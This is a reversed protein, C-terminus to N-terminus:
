GGIVVALSGRALKLYAGSSSDVQDASAGRPFTTMEGLWGTRWPGDLVQVLGGRAADSFPIARTMKDGSVRESRAPFPALSRILNANTEMGSSGPQEEFWTREFGKRTHDQEAIKRILENRDAPSERFRAVHEVCFSQGDYAMLVGATWCATDKKSSALDWFRIRRASDKLPADVLRFWEHRFFSGGRPVPNQQYLAEFTEPNNKRRDLLTQLSFRDTCLSEGVARGMPDNEEAIAPLRLYRWQPGEESELMKGALDALHWRTQINIVPANEQLRSTIDDLYWEWTKERFAESDAEERSKIADDIVMCDISRGTIGGGVGTAFLSSGNALEWENAAQKDGPALGIQTAIRKAQRSLRTAYTMNYSALGVRFGPRHKMLYLPFRHTVCSTKGFQPPMSILLRKCKGSYVDDLADAILGLHKWHWSLEPSVHKCWDLYKPVPPQQGAPKSLLEM